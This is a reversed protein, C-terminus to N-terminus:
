SMFNINVTLFAADGVFRKGKLSESFDEIANQLHALMAAGFAYNKVNELTQLYLLCMKDRSKDPLICTGLM